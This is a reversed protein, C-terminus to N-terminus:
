EAAKAAEAKPRQPRQPRQPAKGAEIDDALQQLRKAHERLRAAQEQPTGAPKWQGRPGRPAKGERAQARERRERPPRPRCACDEGCACAQRAQPKAPAEAPQAAPAPDRPRAECANNPCQAFATVALLAAAAFAMAQKMTSDEKRHRNPWCGRHRSAGGPGDASIRM